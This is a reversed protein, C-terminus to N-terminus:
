QPLYHDALEKVAKYYARGLEQAREDGGTTPHACWMGLVSVVELPEGPPLIQAAELVARIADERMDQAVVMIRSTFMRELVPLMYINSTFIVDCSHLVAQVAPINFGSANKAVKM